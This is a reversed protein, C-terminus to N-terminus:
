EFSVRLRSLKAQISRSNTSLRRERNHRSTAVYKNLKRTFGEHPRPTEDAVQKQSERGQQSKGSLNVIITNCDSCSSLLLPFILFYSSDAVLM